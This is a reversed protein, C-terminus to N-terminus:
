ELALSLDVFIHAVTKTDQHDLLKHHQCHVLLMQLTLRLSLRYLLYISNSISLLFRSDNM